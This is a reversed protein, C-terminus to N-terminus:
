FTFLLYLSAAALAVNLAWPVGLVLWPALALSYGIPYQGFRQGHAMPLFPVNVFEPFRPAPSTLAGESLVRAQWLYVLEDIIVPTAGNVRHVWISLAIVVIALLAGVAIREAASLGGRADSPRSGAGEDGVGPPVRPADRDPVAAGGKGRISSPWGASRTAKTSFIRCRGVSWCPQGLLVM